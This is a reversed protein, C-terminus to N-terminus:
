TPYPNTPSQHHSRGGVAVTHWPPDALISLLSRDHRLNDRDSEIQRLIYKLDMPRIARAACHQALLQPSHLHQLEEALQRRANNSHFCAAAGVKPPALDAFQPMVSPQDWRSVDLGEDHALFVVRCIGLSNTFHCNAWGHMKHWYLAFLGLASRHDEPNPFQLDPRAGLRDVGQTAVKGFEALDHRLARCRM